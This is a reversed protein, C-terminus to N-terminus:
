SWMGRGRKGQDIHEGPVQTEGTSTLSRDNGSVQMDRRGSSWLSASSSAAKSGNNEWRRTCHRACLLQKIFMQQNLSQPSTPESLM